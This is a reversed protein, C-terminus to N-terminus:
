DSDPLDWRGFPFQRKGLAITRSNWEISRVSGEVCFHISHEGLLHLNGPRWLDIPLVDVVFAALVRVAGM